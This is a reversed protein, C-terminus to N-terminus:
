YIEEDTPPDYAHWKYDEETLWPFVRERVARLQARKYEVHSARGRRSEIYSDKDLIQIEYPFFFRYDVLGEAMREGQPSIPPPGKVRIFHRCTIQISNYETSSYLNRDRLLDPDIAPRCEESSALQDAQKELLSERSPDNPLAAEIRHYGRQFRPIDLLTNRSRTTKVNPFAFVNERLYTLAKLADLKSYTVFRFGIRDFIDAGVNDVKHLLKLMLSEFSKQTKIDLTYLRVGSDDKGVYHDGSSDIHVYQMVRDLIQKQIAPFFKDSLDNRIHSLTHMVRLISCAWNSLRGQSSSALVMLAPIDRENRISDPMELHRGPHDPDQLLHIDTFRLAEQRLGDLEVLHTPDSIDFGYSLLFRAASEPTPTSLRPMDIASVQGLVINETEWDLFGPHQNKLDNSM